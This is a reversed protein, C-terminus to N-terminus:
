NQHLARNASHYCRGVCFLQLYLTRNRSCTCFDTLSTELCNSCIFHFDSIIFLFISSMADELLIIVRAMFLVSAAMELSCDTHTYSHTHSHTRTQTVELPYSLFQWTEPLFQRPKTTVTIKGQWAVARRSQFKELSMQILTTDKRIGFWIGTGKEM